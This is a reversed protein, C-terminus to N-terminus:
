SHLQYNRCCVQKDVQEICIEGFPVLFFCNLCIQTRIFSHELYCVGVAPLPEVISRAPRDPWVASLQPCVQLLTLMSPRPNYPTPYLAQLSLDNSVVLSMDLDSWSSLVLALLITYLM